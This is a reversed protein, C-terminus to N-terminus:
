RWDIHQHRVCTTRITLVLPASRLNRKLNFDIFRL